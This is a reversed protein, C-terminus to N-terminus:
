DMLGTELISEGEEVEEWSGVFAVRRKVTRAPTIPVLLGKKRPTIPIPVGSRDLRVGGYMSGEGRGFDYGPGVSVTVPHGLISAGSFNELIVEKPKTRSHEWPMLSPRAAQESKEKETGGMKLGDVLQATDSRRQDPEAIPYVPPQMPPDPISDLYGQYAEIGYWAGVIVVSACIGAVIIGALERATPLIEFCGIIEVRLIAYVALPAHWLEVLLDTFNAFTDTVLDPLAEYLYSIPDFM